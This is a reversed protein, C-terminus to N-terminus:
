SFLMSTARITSFFERDLWNLNHKKSFKRAKEFTFKDKNYKDVRTRINSMYYHARGDNKNLQDVFENMGHQTMYFCLPMMNKLKIFLRLIITLIDHQTCKLYDLVDQGIFDCNHCFVFVPNYSKTKIAHDCISQITHHYLINISDRETIKKPHYDLDWMHNIYETGVSLMIENLDILAIGYIDFNHQM